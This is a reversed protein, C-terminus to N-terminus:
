RFGSLVSHLSAKIPSYSYCVYSVRVVNEQLAVIRVTNRQATHQCVTGFYRNQEDLLTANAISQSHSKHSKISSILGQLTSSRAPYYFVSSPSCTGTRIYGKRVKNTSKSCTSEVSCAVRLWSAEWVYTFSHDRWSVKPEKLV